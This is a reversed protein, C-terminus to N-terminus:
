DVRQLHETPAGFPPDMPDSWRVIMVRLEEPDEGPHQDQWRQIAQENSEDHHKWMVTVKGSGTAAELKEVRSELRM